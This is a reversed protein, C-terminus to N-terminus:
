VHGGYADEENMGVSYVSERGVPQSQMQTKAAGVGARNTTSAPSYLTRMNNSANYNPTIPSSLNYPTSASIPSSIILPAPTNNGSRVGNVPTSSPSAQSSTARREAYARLLADPSMVSDPTAAMSNMSPMMGVPGPSRPSAIGNSSSGHAPPPVTVINNTNGNSDFHFQSPSFLLEDSGEDSATTPSTQKSGKRMLRLAPVMSDDDEKSASSGVNTGGIRKRIDEVSLSTPGQTQTPSMSGSADGSASGEESYDDGSYPNPFDLSKKSHGNSAANSATTLHSVPSASGLGRQQSPVDVTFATHFARSARGTGYRSTRDMSPRTTDAFSIRSKRDMSPRTGDAFSVRSKREGNSYTSSRLGPRLHSQYEALAPNVAVEANFRSTAGIGAQGGAIVSNRMEEGGYVSNRMADNMGKEGYLSARIGEMGGKASMSTWDRSIVSMRKDVMESFRKREDRSAKRKRWVYYAIGAFIVVLLPVLAAAAKSGASLGKKPEVVPKVSGDPNNDVSFDSVGGDLDQIKWDAEPPVSGDTPPVYTAAFVPGAPLSNMFIPDGKPLILLQLSVSTNPVATANWWKPKVPANYTSLANPVSTYLHIRTSDANTQTSDTNNHTSFAYLYIDLLEATLCSSDWSVSIHDTGPFSFSQGQTPSTMFGGTMCSTSPARKAWRKAISGHKFPATPLGFHLHAFDAM